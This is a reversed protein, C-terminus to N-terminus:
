TCAELTVWISGDPTGVGCDEYYFRVSEVGDSIYVSVFFTFYGSGWERVAGKCTCYEGGADTVTINGSVGALACGVTTGSRCVSDHTLNSTSVCSPNNIRFFQVATVRWKTPAASSSSSSSPSSSSSSPLSSSSSPPSQSSSSSSSSSMCYCPAPDDPPGIEEPPDDGICYPDSWCQFMCRNLGPQDGIFSCWASPFLVHDYVQELDQIWERTLCNWYWVRRIQKFSECSSSSSPSDSSSPNPSSLSSSSLSSSSSSPSQSSSSSSSSSGCCRQRIILTIEPLDDIDIDSTGPVSENYHQPGYLWGSCEDEDWTFGGLRSNSACDTIIPADNLEWFPTGDLESCAITCFQAWQKCPCCGECADPDLEPLYQEDADSQDPAEYPDHFPGYLWGSCGSGDDEDFVFQNEYEDESCASLEAEGDKTWTCSNYPIPQEPDNPADPCVVIYRQRWQKCQCCSECDDQIDEPLLDEDLDPVDPACAKHLPGYLMVHCESTWEIGGTTPLGSEACTAPMLMPDSTPEWSECTGGPELPCELRYERQWRACCACVGDETQILTSLTM